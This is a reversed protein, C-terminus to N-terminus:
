QRSPHMATMVLLESERRIQMVFDFRNVETCLVLDSEPFEPRDADAFIRGAPSQRVRDLSAGIDLMEGALLSELCDAFAVDEDGHGDAGLGTTVLTLRRPREHLLYDATTQLCCFGAALITDAQRSRVIGQTGATTRQIVTRGTLDLHQIASPSNPLDFGDVPLGDVEGMILSGAFRQRLAFADFVTGVVLIRDAGAAFAFAATSFARLVDIVVVHGTASNCSELDARQIHTSWNM